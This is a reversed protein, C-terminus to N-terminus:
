TNKENQILGVSAFLGLACGLVIGNGVGFNLFGGLFIAGHM